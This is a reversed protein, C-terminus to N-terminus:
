AIPKIMRLIKDYLKQRDQWKEFLPHNESFIVHHNELNSDNVIEPIKKFFESSIELGGICSAEAGLTTFYAIAEDCLDLPFYPTLLSPNLYSKQLRIKDQNKLIIEKSSPEIAILRDCSELLHCSIGKAIFTLHSSQFHKKLANIQKKMLEFCPFYLSNGYGALDFFVITANLNKNLIEGLDKWFYFLGSIPEHFAQLFVIVNEENGCLTHIDFEISATKLHQTQM